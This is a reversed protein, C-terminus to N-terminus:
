LKFKYKFKYSKNKPMKFPFRIEKLYNKLKNQGAVEGEREVASVTSVEGKNRITINFTYSGKLQNENIFTRLEGEGKMSEDLAQYAAEIIKEQEAIYPKKQAMLNNSALFLLGMLLITFAKRNNKM